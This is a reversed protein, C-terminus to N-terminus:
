VTARGNTERVQHLEKAKDKTIIGDQGIDVVGKADEIVGSKKFVYVLAMTIVLEIQTAYGFANGFAAGFTPCTKTTTTVTLDWYTTFPTLSGHNDISPLPSLSPTVVGGPFVDFNNGCFVSMDVQVNGYLESTLNQMNLFQRRAEQEEAQSCWPFRDAKATMESSVEPLLQAWPTHYWDCPLNDIAYDSGYSFDTYAGNTCPLYQNWCPVEVAIGTGIYRQM